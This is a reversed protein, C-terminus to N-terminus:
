ALDTGALASDSQLVPMVFNTMARLAASAELGGFFPLVLYFALGQAFHCCAPGAPGDSSTGTSAAGAGAHRHIDAVAALLPRDQPSHRRGRSCCCRGHPAAGGRGDAPRAQLAAVAGLGAIFLYVAGGLAAVAPKREVYCARRALWSLFIFPARARWASSRAAWCRHAGPTRPAASWCCRRRRRRASRGSFACSSRSTSTSGAVCVPQTRHGDDARHAAGWSGCEGPDPRCVRHRVRRVRASQAVAGAARQHDPQVRRVAGSRGGGLLRAHDLVRIGSISDVDRPAGLPEVSM